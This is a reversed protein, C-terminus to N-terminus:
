EVPRGNATLTVEVNGRTANSYPCVHHALRMLEVAADDDMGPVSAHLEVALGYTRQEGTVLHVRCDISTDDVALGQRRGVARLANEFCAGYGVAFLQEPNTGAGEGGPPVLEVELAGDDTRGRGARGGAVQAAATYVVKGAM